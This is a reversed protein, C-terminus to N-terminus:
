DRKKKARRKKSNLLAAEEEELEECKKAFAEQAVRSWSVAWRERLKQMRARLAPPLYVTFKTDLRKKTPVSGGTKVAVWQIAPM